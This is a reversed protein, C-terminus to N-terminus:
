KQDKGQQAIAADLADYMARLASLQKRAAEDVALRLADADLAVDFRRGDFWLDRLEDALCQLRDTDLSREALLRERDKRLAELEAELRARTSNWGGYNCDAEALESLLKDREAALAGAESSWHINSAALASNSIELESVRAALAERENLLGVVRQAEAPSTVAVEQNCDDCIHKGPSGATNPDDFEFAISLHRCNILPM